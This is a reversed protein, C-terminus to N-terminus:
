QPIRAFARSLARRTLVSTLKRRYAASAHIDSPPDIDKGGALEAAEAIVKEDPKEGSLAKMAKKALVPGDGVSVLAIRADRCKGNEDLTVRCAVGSLAFDGHRRSIEIFAYGSRAPMPPIGIEVLLEGPNLATEFLGTYFEEAKVARDGAPGRVDFTADLAVMVSPLEAAPDAHALSGGITGRNRIQSHAIFPMTEKLLPALDAIHQNREAEAQRTMAGIHVGGTSGRVYALEPVANLDVLVASRSLRFNMAPILSQGGALPKAASGHEALIALAEAISRPQFFAFPAPKV